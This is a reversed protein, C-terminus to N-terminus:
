QLCLIKSPKNLSLPALFQSLISGSNYCIAKVKVLASDTINLLDDLHSLSDGM